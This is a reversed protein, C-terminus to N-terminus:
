IRFDSLIILILSKSTFQLCIRKQTMFFELIIASNDFIKIIGGELFSWKVCFNVIKYYIVIKTDFFRITLITLVRRFIFFLYNQCFNRPNLPITTQLYKLLCDM